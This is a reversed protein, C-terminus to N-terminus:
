NLIFDYRQLLLWQLHETFFTNKSIESIECSCVLTLLRKKIVNCAEAQLMILFSVTACTHKQFNQSIELFVKELLVEGTAAATKSRNCM